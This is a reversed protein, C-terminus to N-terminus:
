TRKSRPTFASAASAVSSAASAIKEVQLSQKYYKKAKPDNDSAARESPIRLTRIAATTEDQEIQRLVLQRSGHLPTVSALLRVDQTAPTLTIGRPQPDYDIDSTSTMVNDDVLTPRESVYSDKSTEAKDVTDVTICPAPKVPPPAGKKAQPNKAKPDSEGPREAPKDNGEMERRTDLGLKSAELLPTAIASFL